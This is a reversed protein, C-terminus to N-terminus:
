CVELDYYLKGDPALRREASRVEAERKIGLRTSMFETLYQNRSREAADEPSGLNDM